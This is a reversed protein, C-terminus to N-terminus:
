KVTVKCSAKKGSKTIVTVTTKGKKKAKIRGYSDVSAVKKNSSKWRVTDTSNAPKLTAKLSYIKGKQLSLSKKNLKVSVAKKSRSLVTVTCSAKKGRTSTVTIKASGTKRAKLKGNKVSVVSPKSSSWTISDTTNAPFLEAKLTQSKGKALYIKKSSILNPASLAIKVAPVIVKESEEEESSPDQNGSGTDPKQSSGTNEPNQPKEENEGSNPHKEQTDGNGSDRAKVTISCKASIKSGDKATATIVAKGPKQATVLGDADVTAATDSSEWELEMNAADKPSVTATLQLTEGETLTESTKDLSISSVKTEEAPLGGEGNTGDETTYWLDSSLNIHLAPVVAKNNDDVCGSDRIVNGKGLAAAAGSAQPSRLWWLGNGQYSDVIDVWAGMAYTYDSAQVQRSVSYTGSDTCFGYASNTVEGISLLYIKDNTNSGGETGSSLNGENAVTQEVIANQEDNSFAMTYFRDNLWKRLTSNEWSIYAYEENYDKCDMAKDAMVFLTAGNNQLVRWKIREWKFYRYVSHGFNGRNNTDSESIRRYKTGNVWADGDADYDAGTIDPTLASGTVETQPYSGFYVYSWETYDSGNNEKTCRHVPQGPMKENGSNGPKVTINCTASLASGDKATATIVAMGPKQATVLGDADVTAATDSSEWEVEIDSEGNPNVAATLQLTEGETLIEGRKNLSISCAGGEGSTGDDSTYWLDSSLDIYLVPIISDSHSYISRKSLIRGGADVHEIDGISHRGPSRLVWRSMGGNNIKTYEDDGICAGMRFAYDSVQMRRSVSYTISEECFGYDPNVAEDASLLSIKDTTENGETDSSLHNGNVVTKAVIANQERASFANKYFSDNLWGRIDSTEWTFYYRVDNYNKCDMGKDAVVFLTDGDNKLVKWKMREWKFYRYEYVYESSSGWHFDNNIDSDRVRRYKTGNVWADENADYNAGIIESTLASGEIETQPYSGFYVYSWDTYDSGDSLKTCHHIPNSPDDTRITSETEVIEKAQVKVGAIPLAAAAFFICWVLLLAFIKKKM